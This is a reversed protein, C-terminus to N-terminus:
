RRTSRARRSNVSCHRAVDPRQLEQTILAAEEVLLGGLFEQWEPRFRPEIGTLSLAWAPRGAGDFVAAGMGWSEELILGPNVAYETTRTRELNDRILAPSNWEGHFEHREILLAAM